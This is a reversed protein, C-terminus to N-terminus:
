GCGNNLVTSSKYKEMKVLMEIIEEIEYISDCGVREIAFNPMTGYAATRPNQVMTFGGYEAIRQIGTAGDVNAGTLIIGTLGDKFVRAASEFLVDISPRSFNVPEDISLAISRDREVLLHYNSPAIVVQKSAIMEKDEAETVRIQVQDNLFKVLPTADNTLRHQVILIPILFEKPLQKLIKLIIEIGGASSGIVIADCRSRGIFKKM